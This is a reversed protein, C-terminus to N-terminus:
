TYNPGEGAALKNLSSQLIEIARGFEDASLQEPAGVTGGGLAQPNAAVLAVTACVFLLKAVFMNLKPVRLHVSHSSLKALGWKYPCRDM